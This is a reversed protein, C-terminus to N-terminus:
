SYRQAIGYLFSLDSQLNTRYFTTLSPEESLLIKGVPIFGRKFIRHPHTSFIKVQKAGNKESNGDLFARLSKNAEGDVLLKTIGIGKKNEESVADCLKFLFNNFKRPVLPIEVADLTYTQITM